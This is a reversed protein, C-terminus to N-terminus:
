NSEKHHGFLWNMILEIELNKLQKSLASQSVHLKEAAQTISKEEAICLFATLWAFNM